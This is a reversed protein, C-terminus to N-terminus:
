ISKNRSLERERSPQRQFYRPDRIKNVEQRIVPLNPNRQEKQEKKRDLLLKVREEIDKCRNKIDEMNQRGDRSSDRSNM